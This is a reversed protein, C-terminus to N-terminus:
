IHGFKLNLTLDIRQTGDYSGQLQIQACNERPCEQFFM